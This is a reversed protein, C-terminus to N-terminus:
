EIWFGAKYIVGVCLLIELKVNCMVNFMDIFVLSIIQAFVNCM